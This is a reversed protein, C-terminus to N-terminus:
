STTPSSNNVDFDDNFSHKLSCVTISKQMM